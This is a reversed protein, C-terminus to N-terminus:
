KYKIGRFHIKNVDPKTSYCYIVIHKPVYLRSFLTESGEPKTMKDGSIIGKMIDLM